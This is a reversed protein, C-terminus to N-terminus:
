VRVWIVQTVLVVVVLEAWMIGREALAIGEVVLIVRIVSWATRRM